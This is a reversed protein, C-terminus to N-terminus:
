KQDQFSAKERPLHIYLSVAFKSCLFIECTISHIFFFLFLSCLLSSFLFVLSEKEEDKKKWLIYDQNTTSRGDFIDEM